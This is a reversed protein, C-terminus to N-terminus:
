PTEHAETASEHHAAVHHSQKKDKKKLLFNQVEHYLLISIPLVVMVVFGTTTQGWSILYGVYPVTFLVKGVIDDKTTVSEDPVKNADGKTQYLNQGDKQTIDILRHVVMIKNQTGASKNNFVIIQNKQYDAAKRYVVISGTHITPEMSGSRVIVVKYTNPIPLLPIGFFIILLVIVGTIFWTATDIIKKMIVSVKM